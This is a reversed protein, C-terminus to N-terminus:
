AQASQQLQATEEATVWLARQPPSERPLIKAAGHLWQTRLTNAPLLGLATADFSRLAASSPQPFLTLQWNQQTLLTQVLQDASVTDTGHVAGPHLDLLITGQQQLTSQTAVDPLATCNALLQPALGRELIEALIAARSGQLGVSIPLHRRVENKIARLAEDLTNVVFDCAGTRLAAHATASDEELSLCVAGAINAALALAAGQPNLGLSLILAGGWDSRLQHLATFARLTRIQLPENAQM